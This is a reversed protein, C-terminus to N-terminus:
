EDDRGALGVFALIIGVGALGAAIWRLRIPGLALNGGMSGALVMDLVTLALGIGILVLPTRLTAGLDRAEGVGSARALNRAKPTPGSSRYGSLSSASPNAKYQGSVSAVRPKTSAPAVDLDFAGSSDSLHSSPPESQLDFESSPGEQQSEMFFEDSDYSEEAKGGAGGPGDLAMDDFIDFSGSFSSQAAHAAPPRHSDMTEDDYSRAGRRKNARAFSSPAGFARELETWFTAIDNYRERPDVALAREFVRNVAEPLEVGENRPTPRRNVDLATGMMAHMDGDIPPQGSLCEVMTLALGWVDTWPGSQGYRKPVWQEPAGYAPTFPNAGDTETIKGVNQRVMDRAKAIGFDLVKARVPSDKDTILVNEPKMDCHTISVVAGGPVEFHHARHLAHAIPTLMKLTQRMGLPKLGQDDRMIIISDLPKGEIWEMAIYPVVTGDDLTM